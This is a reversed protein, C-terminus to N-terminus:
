GGLISGRKGTSRIRQSILHSMITSQFCSSIAPDPRCRSGERNVMPPHLMDIGCYSCAGNVMPQNSCLEKPDKVIWDLMSAVFRLLVHYLYFLCGIQFVYLQVLQM